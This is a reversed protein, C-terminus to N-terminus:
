GRAVAIIVNIIFASVAIVALWQARIWQVRQDLLQYSARTDDILKPIGFRALAGHVLRQAEVSAVPPATVLELEAQTFAVLLRNAERWGPAVVPVTQVGVQRSRRAVQRAESRFLRRSLICYEFLQAARLKTVQYKHTDVLRYLALADTWRMFLQEYRRSSLNLSGDVEERLRTSSEDEYGGTLWTAVQDAHETRYEDLDDADVQVSLFPYHREIDITDRLVGAPEFLDWRSEHRHWLDNKREWPDDPTGDIWATAVGVGRTPLVLVSLDVARGADVLETAEDIDVSMCLRRRDHFLPAEDRTVEGSGYWLWDAAEAYDKALQMTRDSAHRPTLIHDSGHAQRSRDRDLLAGISGPPQGRPFVFDVMSAVETRVVPM